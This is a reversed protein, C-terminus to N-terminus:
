TSYVRRYPVNSLVVSLYSYLQLNHFVIKGREKEARRRRFEFLRIIGSRGSFSSSRLNRLRRRRFVLHRRPRKWTRFRSPSPPSISSRPTNCTRFKASKLRSVSLTRNGTVIPGNSWHHAPIKVKEHVTNPFTTCPVINLTSSSKWYIRPPWIPIVVLATYKQWISM